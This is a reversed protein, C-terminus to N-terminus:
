LLGIEEFYELEYQAAKNTKDSGISATSNKLFEKRKNLNYIIRYIWAYGTLWPRGEIFKIYPIDKLKEYPPFLLRLRTMVPSNKKGEELEKRQIVAAKNRNVNGFAGFSLLFIETKVVDDLYAQGIGFWKYCVTLIVKSFDYLGIENMKSLANNLNINSNKLLVALDVIMKVGAGYFWFHHAVHTLLYAFHYDDDLYGCYGDFKANNIADAFGDSATSTGVKGSIIKTHMEVLVGNYTYDYVPGNCNKNVFGNECLIQKVRDRNENDILVDIDGMARVPPLPYLEKIQAGKFFVHRIKSESLLSSLLNIVETQTQYRYISEYFVNEFLQKIETNKKLEDCDKIVSYVLAGLNHSKSIDYLAKYDIGEPLEIKSQYIYAKCIDILLQHEKIM